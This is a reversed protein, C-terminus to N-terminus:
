IINRPYCTMLLGQQKKTITNRLIVMRTVSHYRKWNATDQKILQLTEETLFDYRFTDTLDTEVVILSDKQRVDTFHWTPEDYLMGTHTNRFSAQQKEFWIRANLISETRTNENSSKYQECEYAEQTCGCISIVIFLVMSPVLFTKMM